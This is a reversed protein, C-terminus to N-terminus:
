PNEASTVLKFGLAIMVGGAARDLWAKYRLYAQRPINSSLVLAVWTYWVTEIAFILGAVSLNFVPSSETPLFAAFVSAYVVATKPNSLQTTLGLIFARITTTATSIPEIESSILPKKANLWIQLGLYALYLGGVVKLVWYLSPIALLLGHLGLLAATAFVLGGVGMGLAACIGEVRSAAIATRAVMVFSPGPSAAGVALATGISLLATMEQM